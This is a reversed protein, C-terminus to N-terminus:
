QADGADSLDDSELDLWDFEDDNNSDSATATEEAGSAAHNMSSHDMQSHDDSSNMDQMENEALEVMELAVIPYQNGQKEVEVSLGQGVQLQSPIIAPDIPFDMVMAPWNWEPIPPHSLTLAQAKIAVVKAVVTISTPQRDPPGMRSFDARLSSESDLLFHASTVVKDGKRLGALIEVKGGSERGLKVKVSQYKGDGRAMVVRSFDGGHIVAERPILLSYDGDEAQLTVQAYMNPKLREDHNAFKIRVQLTRTSADLVPYIYDVQGQWQEGAFSGAQMVAKDGVRVLNAQSEYLEAILWIDHLTGAEILQTAPSIFAGERVGLKSVYGTDPAYLDIFQSVKKTKELQKIQAQSVGLVQLRQKTAHILNKNGLRFANLLDDQAKLLEPSYLSLLKQGKTVREGEAKVYLKEVWGSIRSNMQWLTDQNFSLSGVAKVQPSFKELSVVQTRVGLNNEVRPSISVMGPADSSSSEEYVPVLDMGMPSLGPKDRRYNPDMPAVWYLPQAQDDTQSLSPESDHVGGLLKSQSLSYGGALGLSLCLIGLVFKNM